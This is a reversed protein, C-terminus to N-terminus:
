SVLTKTQQTLGQTWTPYVTFMLIQRVYPYVFGYLVILTVANTLFFTMIKKSYVVAM